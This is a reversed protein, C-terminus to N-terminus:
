DGKRDNAPKKKGKKLERKNMRTQTPLLLLERKKRQTKGQRDSM